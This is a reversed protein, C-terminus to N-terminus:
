GWRVQHSLPPMGHILGCTRLGDCRQQGDFLGGFNLVYGRPRNTALDLATFEGMVAYPLGDPDARLIQGGKQLPRLTLAVPDIGPM